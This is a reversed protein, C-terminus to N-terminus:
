NTKSVNPRKPRLELIIGFRDMFEDILEYGFGRGVLIVFNNAQNSSGRQSFNFREWKEKKNEDFWENIRLAKILDHAMQSRNPRLRPQRVTLQDLEGELDEETVFFKTESKIRERLSSYKSPPLLSTHQFVKYWDGETKPILGIERKLFEAWTQMKRNSIQSNNVGLQAYNMYFGGSMEIAGILGWEKHLRVLESMIENEIETNM